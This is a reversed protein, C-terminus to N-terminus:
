AVPVCEANSAPHKRHLDVLDSRSPVAPQSAESAQLKRWVYRPFYAALRKELRLEYIAESEARCVAVWKERDWPRYPQSTWCTKQPLLQNAM